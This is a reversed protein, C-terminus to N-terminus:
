TNLWYEQMEKAFIWNIMTYTKYSISKLGALSSFIFSGGDPLLFQIRGYIGTQKWSSSDVSDEKNLNLMKIIEYRTMGLIHIKCGYKHATNIFLNLQSDHVDHAFGTISIKRGSYEKCTDIYDQVGRFVHWVPIIKDSVEELKKRIKKVEEVGIVNDIDMEFFGEIKPNSTNKKIFEIYRDVYETLAKTDKTHQITHAGSDILVKGDIRDLIDELHKQDKIYFFSILGYKIREKKM